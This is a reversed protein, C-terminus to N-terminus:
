AREICGRLTAALAEVHPHELMKPGSGTVRHVDIGRTALRMWGLRRDLDPDIASKWSRSSLVKTITGKFTPLSGQAYTRAAVEERVHLQDAASLPASRPAVDHAAIAIRRRAGERLTSSGERIGRVSDAPRETLIGHAHYAARQSARRLRQALSLEQPADVDILVLMGVDAGQAQLQTAMEFATWSGMSFGFLCYPGKPRFALLEAVYRAAAEQVTAPAFDVSAQLGYAPQDSGLLRSVERFAGVSPGAGGPLWFLPPKSGEVQLPV